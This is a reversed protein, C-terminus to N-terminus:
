SPCIWVHASRREQLLLLEEERNLLCCIIWLDYAGCMWKRTHPIKKFIERVKLTLFAMHLVGTYPREITKDNKHLRPEM